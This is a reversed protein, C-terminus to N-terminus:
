AVYRGGAGKHLCVDCNSLRLIEPRDTTAQNLAQFQRSWVQELVKIEALGGIECSGSQRVKELLHHIDSAIEEMFFRQQGLLIAVDLRPLTPNYRGYWHPLAIKRLWQPFRVALIELAQHMAQQAQQLCNLSCVVAAIELSRLNQFSQHFSPAVVILRDILGQFKSQCVIDALVQQRFRCLASEQLTRPYLSLHL